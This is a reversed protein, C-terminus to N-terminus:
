DNVRICFLINFSLQELINYLFMFCPWLGARKVIKAKSSRRGRIGARCRFYTGFLPLSRGTSIFGVLVVGWRPACAFPRMVTM